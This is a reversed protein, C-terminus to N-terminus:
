NRKGGEARIPHAETECRLNISPRRGLNFDEILEYIEAWNDAFHIFPSSNDDYNMNWPYRLCIGEYPADTLNDYYDDVLVDLLLLQKRQINIMHSQIYGEPLFTLHRELFKIKKRLNEPTTATVFYLENNNHYLRELYPLSESIFEVSKWMSASHFAQHVIWRFQDPVFKEMWYDTIDTETLNTGIRENIYSLVASTTNCLVNDIDLGIKM